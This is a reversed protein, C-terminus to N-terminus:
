AELRAAQGLVPWAALAQVLRAVRGQDPWVARQAAWAQAALEQRPLAQAWVLAGGVALGQHGQEPEAALLAPLKVQALARQPAPAVSASWRRRKRRQDRRHKTRRRAANRGRNRREM